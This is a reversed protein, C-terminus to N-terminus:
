RDDDTPEQLYGDNTPQTPNDVLGSDADHDWTCARRRICAGVGLRGIDGREVGGGERRELGEVVDAPAQVVPPSVWRSGTVPGTPVYAIGARGSVSLSCGM